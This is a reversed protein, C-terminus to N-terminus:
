ETDPLAGGAAPKRRRRRRKKPASEGESQPEGYGAEATAPSQAPAGTSPVALSERSVPARTQLEVKGTEVRAAVDRLPISETDGRRGDERSPGATGSAVSVKKSGDQDPALGKPARERFRASLQGFRLRDGGKVKARDIRKGNVYTGNSSKLDVLEYLGDAQMLFEAHHGSIYTNDIVIDNSTDRGLTLRDELLDFVFENGDNLNFALYAM